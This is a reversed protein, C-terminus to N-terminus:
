WGEISRYLFFLVAADIALGVGLGTALGYYRSKSPVLRVRLVRDLPIKRISSETQVMVNLPVPIVGSVVLSDLDTATTRKEFPATISALRTFQTKVIRDTGLEHVVCWSIVRGDDVSVDVGKWLGTVSDGDCLGVTVTDNWRPVKVHDWWDDRSYRAAYGRDSERTMGFFRGEVSTSDRLTVAIRNGVCDEPARWPEVERSATEDQWAGATASIVTCGCTHFALIAATLVCLTRTIWPATMAAGM